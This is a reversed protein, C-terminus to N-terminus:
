VYCKPFVASFFRAQILVPDYDLAYQATYLAAPIGVFVDSLAQVVFMLNAKTLRKRTVLGIFTAIVLLNMALSLVATCCYVITCRQFVRHFDM